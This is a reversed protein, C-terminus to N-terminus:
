LDIDFNYSVWKLTDYWDKIGFKEGIKIVEWEKLKGKRAKSETQRSKYDAMINAQFAPLRFHAIILLFFYISIVFIGQHGLTGM